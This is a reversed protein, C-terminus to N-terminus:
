CNTFDFVTVISHPASGILQTGFGFVIYLVVGMGFEWTGLRVWAYLSDPPIKLGRPRWPSIELPTWKAM